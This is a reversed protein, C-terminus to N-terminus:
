NVQLWVLVVFKTAMCGEIRDICYSDEPNMCEKINAGYALHAGESFGHASFNVELIIHSM